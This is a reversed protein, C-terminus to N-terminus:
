EVVGAINDASFAILRGPLKDLEIHLLKRGVRQITGYRAGRIWLDTAPHIEVRQGVQYGLLKPTNTRSM